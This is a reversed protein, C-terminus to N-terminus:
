PILGPDNAIEVRGGEFRVGDNLAVSNGAVFTVDGPDVVALGPGLVMSTCAGIWETTDLTLNYLERAEPYGCAGPELCDWLYLEKGSSLSRLGLVDRAEARVFERETGPDYVHDAPPLAESVHGDGWYWRVTEAAPCSPLYPTVDAAIQVRCGDIFSDPHDSPPFHVQLNVRGCLGFDIGSTEAGATVAVPTGTTPVAFFCGLPCLLDDYLENHYGLLPWVYTAVFYLGTELGFLGYQGEGFYASSHRRGAGDWLLMQGGLELQDAMGVVRGSISGGYDLAFDIGPTTMGAAVAIPTGTTPDCDGGTCPLDDYLEDIHYDSFTVAFHAGAYLGGITYVGWDDSHDSGAWRGGDDWAYVVVDPVSTGASSDTIFGSFAGQRPLAFDIGGTESGATVAIPTGDTPDCGAACDLANYLQDLYPYAHGLAFYTGTSLGTVAYRGFEDAFGLGVGNGASDEIGVNANAIPQGTQGDTVRGSITGGRQLAFDARTAGGLAVTIETGEYPDCDVPCPMDDYLEGLYGEGSEAVASYGGPALGYLYYFGQSDSEDSGVYGESGFVGVQVGRVAAGTQADTIFGEVGGARELDFDARFVQGLELPVATGSTPDCFDFCNVDDFLEAQYDLHSARVFYTGQRLGGISFAGSASTHDGGRWFGMEDYVEVQVDELGHGDSARIVTGVIEAPRGVNLVALGSNGAPGAVRVLVEDGEQLNYTAESEVGVADDNCALENAAVGPCGSHISLVTDIASGFTNFMVEGTASAAYRFWVDPGPETAGCTTEGDASAATTDAAHSGDGILAADACDDNPPVFGDSAGGVEADTDSHRPRGKTGGSSPPPPTPARLGAGLRGLRREVDRLFRELNSRYPERRSNATWRELETRIRRLDTLAAEAALRPSEEGSAQLQRADRELLDLRFHIAQLWQERPPPSVAKEAALAPMALEWLVVLVGGFRYTLSRRSM